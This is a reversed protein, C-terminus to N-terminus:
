PSPNMCMKKCRKKRKNGRKEPSRKVIKHEEAHVNDTASSLAFTDSIGPWDFYVNANALSFILFVLNDFGLM